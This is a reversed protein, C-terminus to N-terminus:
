SPEPYVFVGHEDLDYDLGQFETLYEQHIAQPDLDEFLDPHFWKAMYASGIFHRAGYYIGTAILYVKGNKVAAVNALEPRNIIADRQDILKTIDDTDYGCGSAMRVIIEPNQTVVEEASIDSCSLDGLINNGGAAVIYEGWAHGAGCSYYPRHFEHYVRPREEKPIGKTKDTITNMCGKYFDIFEEAEEEKDLIYGLKRAEDVCIEMKFGGSVCVLTIDPDLENLKNLVEERYGTSLFVADPHCNLIEEYNPFGMSFELNPYDAFEQFFTPEASIVYNNVGVIKDNAHLSRLMEVIASYLVAIRKVPNHVTVTREGSDIVTLEKEKGVIILKIQIFDLPNIKGDYKADALETEPKKGFFILKVYTLDRMDVTDDENANGYIGLVYDDESATTAASASLMEQNQEAAIAPM